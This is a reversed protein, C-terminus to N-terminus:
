LNIFIYTKLFLKANKALNNDLLDRGSSVLAITDEVRNKLLKSKLNKWKQEIYLM